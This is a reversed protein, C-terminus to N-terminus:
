AVPHGTPVHDARHRGGHGVDADQDDAEDDILARIWRHTAQLEVLPTAQLAPFFQSWRVGTLAVELGGRGQQLEVLGILGARDCGTVSSADIVVRRWGQDSLLRCHALLEAVTM